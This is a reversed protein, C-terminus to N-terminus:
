IEVRELIEILQATKPELGNLMMRPKKIAKGGVTDKMKLMALKGNGNTKAMTEHFARWAKKYDAESIENAYYILCGGIDKYGCSYYVCDDNDPCTMNQEKLLTIWESFTQRAIPVGASRLLKEIENYPLTDFDPEFFYKYYFLKLKQFDTQSPIGLEYICFEKFRDPAKTITVTCSKGRGDTEFECEITKLKGKLTDLRKAKMIEKIEDVKYTKEEIM